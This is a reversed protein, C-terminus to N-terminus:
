VALKLVALAVCLCGREFVSFLSFLACVTPQCSSGAPFPEQQWAQTDSNLGQLGRPPLSQNRCTARQGGCASHRM